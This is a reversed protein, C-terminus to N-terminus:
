ATDGLPTPPSVIEVRGSAIDYMVASAILTRPIAADINFSLVTLWEHMVTAVAARVPGPRGDM